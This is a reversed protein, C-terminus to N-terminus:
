SWTTQPDLSATTMLLYTIDCCVLSFFKLRVKAPGLCSEAVRWWWGVVILASWELFIIFNPKRDGWEGEWGGDRRNTQNKVSLECFDERSVIESQRFKFNVNWRNHQQLM